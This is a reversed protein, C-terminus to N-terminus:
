KLMLIWPRLTVRPTPLSKKEVLATDEEGSEPSFVPLYESWHRELKQLRAKCDDVWTFLSLKKTSGLAPLVYNLVKKWDKAALYKEGGALYKGRLNFAEKDRKYNKMDKESQKRAEEKKAEEM